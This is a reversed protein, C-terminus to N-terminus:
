ILEKEGKTPHTHSVARAVAEETTTRCISTRDHQKTTLKKNAKLISHDNHTIPIEVGDNHTSALALGYALLGTLTHILSVHQQVYCM